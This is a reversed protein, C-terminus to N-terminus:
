FDVAYPLPRSTLRPLDVPPELIHDAPGVGARSILVASSHTDNCRSIKLACGGRLFLIVEGEPTTSIATVKITKM